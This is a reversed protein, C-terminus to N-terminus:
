RSIRELFCSLKIIEFSQIQGIINEGYFKNCLNRDENFRGVIGIWSDEQLKHRDVWKKVKSKNNWNKSNEVIIPIEKNDYFIKYKEHYFTRLDAKLSTKTHKLGNFVIKLPDKQDNLKQDYAIYFINTLEAYSIECDEVISINKDIFIEVDKISSIYPMKPNSEARRYMFCDTYHDSIGIKGKLHSIYLFDLSKIICYKSKLNSEKDDVTIWFHDLDTISDITYFNNANKYGKDFQISDISIDIAKGIRNPEDMSIWNGALEFKTGKSSDQAVCKLSFLFFFCTTIIFTAFMRLFISEM